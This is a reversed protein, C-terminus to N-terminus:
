LFWDLGPASVSPSKRKSREDSKTCGAPTKTRISKHHRYWGRAIQSTADSFWTNSKTHPRQRRNGRALLALNQIPSPSPNQSFHECQKQQRLSLILIVALGPFVSLFV